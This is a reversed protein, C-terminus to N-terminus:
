SHNRTLRAARTFPMVLWFSVAIQVALGAGIILCAVAFYHASLRVLQGTQLTTLM